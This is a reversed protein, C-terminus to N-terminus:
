QTPVEDKVPRRDSIMGCVPVGCVCMHVDEVHGSCLGSQDATIEQHRVRGWGLEHHKVVCLRLAFCFVFSLCLFSLFGAESLWACMGEM